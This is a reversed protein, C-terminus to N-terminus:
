TFREKFRGLIVLKGEKYEALGPYLDQDPSQSDQCTDKMIERLVELCIGLHDRLNSLWVRELRRELEVARPASQSGECNAVMYKTGTNEREM